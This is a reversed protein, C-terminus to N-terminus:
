LIEGVESAVVAESNFLEPKTLDNYAVGDKLVYVNWNRKVGYKIAFGSHTEIITPITDEFEDLIGEIMDVHLPELGEVFLVPKRGLERLREALVKAAIILAVRRVGESVHGPEYFYDGDNFFVDDQVELWFATLASVTHNIAFIYGDYDKAAQEKGGVSIYRKIVSPNVLGKLDLVGEGGVGVLKVDSYRVWALTDIGLGGAIHLGTSYAGAGCGGKHLAEVGRKVTVNVEGGDRELSIEYGNLMIKGAKTGYNVLEMLEGCEVGINNM